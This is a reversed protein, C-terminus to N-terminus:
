TMKAQKATFCQFFLNLYALKTNLFFIFNFCWLSAAFQAWLVTFKWFKSVLGQSKAAMKLYNQFYPFSKQNKSEIFWYVASSVSDLVSSPDDDAGASIWASWSAPLDSMLMLLVEETAASGGWGSVCVCSACSVKCSWSESWPVKFTTFHM